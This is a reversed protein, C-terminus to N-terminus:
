PAGLGGVDPDPKNALERATRKDLTRCIELWWNYSERDGEFFAIEAQRHAERAAGLGHASFHRLAQYVLIDNGHADCNDNAPQQLTCSTLVRVIPSSASNHASAFRITM